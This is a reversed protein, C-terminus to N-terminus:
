CLKRLAMKDVVEYNTWTHRDSNGACVRANTCTQHSCVNPMVAHSFPTDETKASLSMM